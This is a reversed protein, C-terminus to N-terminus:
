FPLPGELNEHQQTLWDMVQQFKSVPLQKYGNISFRSYLDGYIAGFENRGSKKDM